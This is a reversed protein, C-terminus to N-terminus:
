FRFVQWYPFNWPMIALVPGLPDFVVYSRAADSAVREPALMDAAQTAYYRCGAACKAIEARAETIPKGMERTVLRAHTERDRDLVDAARAVVALREAIPTSRWRAFASAAGELLADVAGADHTPYTAITAGTAPDISTFGM